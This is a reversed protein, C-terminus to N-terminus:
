IIMRQEKSVPIHINPVGSEMILKMLTNVDVSWPFGLLHVGIIHKTKGEERLKLLYSLLNDAAIDADAYGKLFGEDVLNCIVAETEGIMEALSNSLISDGTIYLKKEHIEILYSNHIPDWHNFHSTHYCKINIHEFSICSPVMNDRTYIPEIQNMDAKGQLLIPKVISPPGIIRNDQGKLDPLQDPNFHDEDDHTFMIIDGPLVEVPQVMSNFADVLIRRDTGEIILSGVGPNRISIQGM